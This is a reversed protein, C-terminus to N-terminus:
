NHIIIYLSRSGRTEKGDNNHRRARSDIAFAMTRDNCWTAAVVDTKIKLLVDLMPVNILHTPM